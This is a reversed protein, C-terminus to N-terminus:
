GSRDSRWRSRHEQAPHSEATASRHRGSAAYWAGYRRAGWGATAGHAAVSMLVTLVVVSFLQDAGPVHEELLILGFVISALGRPGFWGVFVQTQWATGSRALSVMVPLLRGVTLTAIACVVVAPSPRQLGIPVLVNGFLFFSAAALLQGSDETYEVLHDARGRALATFVLGGVFAAVFGNGGTAEAGSLALVAIALTGLQAYLGDAWGSELAYRLALVGAAGVTAGLAVGLGVQQAFHTPWSEAAARAGALSLLLLVIPLVLGDNLGSEVNLSQRVSLPVSRDDVVAQGLAPDTPALVAALLAAQAIGLDTLLAAVIVTGVLISLPLGVGLLRVPLGRERLLAVVDIRVADSFLVLALAGEGIMAIRSGSLSLDVLGVAHSLLGAAVMVMPMTLPWRRSRRSLLAYGLLVVALIALDITSM